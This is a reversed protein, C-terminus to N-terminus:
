VRNYKETIGDVTLPCLQNIPKILVIIRRAHCAHLSALPAFTCHLSLNCHMSNTNECEDCPIAEAAAFASGGGPVVEDGNIEGATAEAGKIM